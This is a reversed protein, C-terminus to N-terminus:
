PRTPRPPIPTWGFADNVEQATLLGKNVLLKGLPDVVAPPPTNRQTNNESYDLLEANDDEVRETSGDPWKSHGVVNGTADRHLYRM